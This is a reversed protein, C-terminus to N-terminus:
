FSPSTWVKRALQGKVHDIYWKAGDDYWGGSYHAGICGWEDNATYPTGFTARAAQGNDWGEFCVRHLGFIYDLHFPTSDRFAPWASQHFQWVIQLIGYTMACEVGGDATSRTYADPPCTDTNTTWDGFLGQTWDSAQEAEARVHDEDFGWKCAVWQLLEDTTGTFAGTIRQQLGLARNDFANVSSNWPSLAALQQPTPVVHNATTNAPRQETGTRHVLAACTADDPLVSGAPLTQFQPVIAGGAGASGTAGAAADAGTSVLAVRADLTCAPAVLALACAALARAVVGRRM